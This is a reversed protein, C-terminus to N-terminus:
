RGPPPADFDFALQRDDEPEDARADGPRGEEPDSRPDLTVAEATTQPVAVFPGQEANPLPARRRMRLVVFASLIAGVAAFFFFLGAEGVVGMAQAAAIPGLISGVGFCLLLGASAAILRDPTVYDNAHTLSIPYLTYSIGGYLALLPILV